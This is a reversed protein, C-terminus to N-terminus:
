FAAIPDALTKGIQVDMVKAVHNRNRHIKVHIYRDSGASVKIYYNIGSVAQERFSIAEFQSLPKGKVYGNPLKRIIDGRLVNVM